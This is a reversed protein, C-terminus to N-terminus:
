DNWAGYPSPFLVWDLTAVGTQIILKDCLVATKPLYCISSARYDTKLGEFSISLGKQECFLAASGSLTNFDDSIPIGVVSIDRLIRNHPADRECTPDGEPAVRGLAASAVGDQIICTLSGRARLM